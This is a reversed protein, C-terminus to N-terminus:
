TLNSKLRAIFTWKHVFSQTSTSLYTRKRRDGSENCSLKGSVELHQWKCTMCSDRANNLDKFASSRTSCRGRYSCQSPHSVVLKHVDQLYQSAKNKSTTPLEQKGSDSANMQILLIFWNRMAISGQCRRLYHLPLSSTCRFWKKRCGRLRAEGLDLKLRELFLTDTIQFAAAVRDRDARDPWSTANNWGFQLM